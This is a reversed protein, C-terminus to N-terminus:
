RVPAAEVRVCAGAVCALRPPLVCMPIPCPMGDPPFVAPDCREAWAAENARCAAATMPAHPCMPCYCEDLSAPATGFVCSVCDADTACADPAPAYACTGDDCFVPAPVVCRPIPCERRAPWADWGCFREHAAGNAECEAATLPTDPCIPCYCESASRPATGFTCVTCAADDVCVPTDPEVPVCGRPQSVGLTAVLVVVLLSLARTAAIRPKM